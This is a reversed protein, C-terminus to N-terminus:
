HPCIELLLTGGRFFISMTAWGSGFHVKSARVAVHSTTHAGPEVSLGM